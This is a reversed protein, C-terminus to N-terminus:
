ATASSRSNTDFTVQTIANFPPSLSRQPFLSVINSWQACMKQNAVDKEKFIPLEKDFKQSLFNQNMAAMTSSLKFFKSQGNPLWGLPDAMWWVWKGEPTVEMFHLNDQISPTDGVDGIKNSVMLTNGNPLREVTGFLSSSNRTSHDAYEWEATAPGYTDDPGLPPFSGNPLVPPKWEKAKAPQNLQWMNNEFVMMNGGGTYGDPIWKPSHAQHITADDATGRDYAAPNGWRYLLDGGKGYVGGTHAAGQATTKPREIVYAESRMWSTFMIQDFGSHYDIGNIHSDMAGMCNELFSGADPGITNTVIYNANMLQPNASVNGYNAISSNLDQVFHDRTWWVWTLSCDDMNVEALGDMSCGTYNATETRLCSSMMQTKYAESAVGWSNCLDMDYVKQRVIIVQSAYKTKTTELPLPLTRFRAYTNPFGLEEYAAGIDCQALLNNDWDFLEIYRSEDFEQFPVEQPCATSPPAEGPLGLPDKPVFTTPPKPIRVITGTAPHFIAGQSSYDMARWMHKVEGTNDILYEHLHAAGTVFTYRCAAFFRRPSLSTLKVSKL